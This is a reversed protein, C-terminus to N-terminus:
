WSLEAWGSSSSRSGESIMVLIRTFVGLGHTVPNLTSSDKNYTVSIPVETIKLNKRTAEAVTEASIAM